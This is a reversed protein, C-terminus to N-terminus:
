ILSRIQQWLKLRLSLENTGALATIIPARLAWATTIAAITAVAIGAQWYPKHEVKIRRVVTLAGAALVLVAVAGGAIPSRALVLCIAAVCISSISLWRPISRTRLETGFTVLAIL